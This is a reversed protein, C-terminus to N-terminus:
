HPPPPPGPGGAPGPFGPARGAASPPPAPSAPNALQRLRWAGDPVRRLECGGVLGAALGALAVGGLLRWARRPAARRGISDPAPHTPMPAAPPTADCSTRGGERSERLTPQM